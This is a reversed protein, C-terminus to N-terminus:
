LVGIRKLEKACRVTAEVDALADHADAFNEGDFLIRHLEELKPWKYGFGRKKPLKCFETTALMTCLGEDFQKSVDVGFHFNLMGEAFYRDFNLNHAILRRGQMLEHFIHGALMERVGFQNAVDESIGHTGYAGASIKQGWEPRKVMLSVRELINFDDDTVAIGYQVAWATGQTGYATGKKPKFGSTETDFFMYGSTM